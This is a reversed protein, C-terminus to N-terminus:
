EYALLQRHENETLICAPMLNLEDDCDYHMYYEAGDINIERFVFARSYDFAKQLM